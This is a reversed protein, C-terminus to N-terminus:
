QTAPQNLAALADAAIRRSAAIAAARANAKAVWPEALAKQVPPLQAVDALAAGIDAHAADADLRALVSSPAGGAPANVPTIHVLSKANKEIRGLFGGGSATPAPSASAPRLSATLQSLEHALEAVSPIGSAAFPELPATVNPGAGLSKAATLETQYPAGREVAARLADAAVAARAARDPMSAARQAAASLTKISGELATIRAALADLDSRQVANQSASQAAGKATDAAADATQAATKATGAAADANHAATKAAGAAADARQSAAQAAVAIEDLRRNIGALLDSLAKTQAEIGAVRAALAADAPRSQLEAEIKDLQASIAPSAGGDAAAGPANRTPVLGSVWVGFALAGVLAAGVVVGAGYRWLGASSNGHATSARTGSDGGAPQTTAASKPPATETETATLDITPPRRRPRSDPESTM